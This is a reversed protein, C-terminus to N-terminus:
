YSRRAPAAPTAPKAETAAPPPMMVTDIVHIVGNSAPIDTAVVRAGGAQVVGDKVVIPISRGLVSPAETLKVVADSYVRGPIV